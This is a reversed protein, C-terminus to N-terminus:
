RVREAWRAVQFQFLRLASPSLELETDFAQEVFTQANALRLFEDFPITAVLSRKGHVRSILPLARGDVRMTMAPTDDAVPHQTVILDVATPRATPRQGLEGVFRTVFDITYRPSDGVAPFTVTITNTEAKGDWGFGGGIATGVLRRSAPPAQPHVVIGALAVVVGVVALAHKM